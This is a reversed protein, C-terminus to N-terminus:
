REGKNDTCLKEKLWDLAAGPRGIYKGSGTVVSCLEATLGSKGPSIEMSVTSGKSLQCNPSLSFLQSVIRGLAPEHGVIVLEDADHYTSAIKEITEVGHEGSLATSIIIDSNFQLCEALIDATQVARIKSSSIILDPSFGTKKLSAAVQRFKKRGLCTLARYEDPLLATRTVAQAHRILHLKM